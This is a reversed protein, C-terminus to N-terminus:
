FSVGVSVSMAHADLRYTGDAVTGQEVRRTPQHSFQYAVDANWREGKFGFGLTFVHRDNDPLSPLITEEPVMKEAYIYGVSAHWRNEWSRTVGINYLWNSRWHLPLSVTDAGSRHITLENVSNWDTWEAGLEINWERTPRFSYAVTFFQPFKLDANADQETASGPIKFLGFPTPM